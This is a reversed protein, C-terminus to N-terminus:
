EEGAARDLPTINAADAQALAQDDDYAQIEADTPIGWSTPIRYNTAFSLRRFADKPDAEIAKDWAARAKVWDKLKLGDAKGDEELTEFLDRFAEAREEESWMDFEDNSEVEVDIAGEDLQPTFGLAPLTAQAEAEPSPEGDEDILRPGPEPKPAPQGAPTVATKVGPRELKKAIDRLDEMVPKVLDFAEEWAGLDLDHEDIVSLAHRLGTKVNAATAELFADSRGEAAKLRGKTHLGLELIKTGTVILGQLTDSNRLDKDLFDQLDNIYHVCRAACSDAITARRTEEQTVKPDAQLAPLDYNFTM